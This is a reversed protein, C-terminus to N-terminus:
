GSVPKLGLELLTQLYLSSGTQSLSPVQGLALGESGEWCGSCRMVRRAATVTLQMHGQLRTQELDGFWKAKIEWLRTM